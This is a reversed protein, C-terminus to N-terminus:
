ARRRLPRPSLLLHVGLGCLALGLGCLATLGPRGGTAPLEQMVVPAAPPGLPPPSLVTDDPQPELPTPEPCGDSPAPAIVGPRDVYDALEDLPISIERYPREADGTPVCVRV